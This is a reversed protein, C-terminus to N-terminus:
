PARLSSMGSVRWNAIAMATAAAVVTGSSKTGFIGRSAKARNTLPTDIEGVKMVAKLKITSDDEMLWGTLDQGAKVGEVVIVGVTDKKDHVVFHIM